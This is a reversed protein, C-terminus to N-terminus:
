IVFGGNVNITEGTIFDSAEDALFFVTNAVDSVNGIRGIPTEDALAKLDDESFSSMMDTKIVGPAVCNVCIGSPGLEKALAKTFGIVGAKAASYAVECSAGTIGWMSSVNIIKGSKRSVFHSLLARTLIFVSTLDSNIVFNWDDLTMDSLLGMWSVGANNVLVDITKYEKLISSVKVNVDNEDTVDCMVGKVNNYKNEIENAKERSNKYLFIVNDGNEAFKRVIEAGIGRSGGSILINKM